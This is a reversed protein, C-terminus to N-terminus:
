AAGTPNKAAWALIGGLGQGEPPQSWDITVDEFPELGKISCRVTPTQRDPTTQLTYQMKGTKEDMTGQAVLIDSFLLPIKEKLRGTMLPQRFIKQSIEDKDLMLHGTFYVLKGMGTLTRVINTFTVMQPGYDDQQPWQGPRGNITLIRDMLLDLLTTCSDMGIVDISDFFGEARRAEFDKEWESYVTSNAKGAATDGKDKKLSHVALPVDAPYFEEYDVDHGKLTNIANPDFLYMFKRGPLTLFQSTKGSGTTGLILFKNPADSDIDRANPM